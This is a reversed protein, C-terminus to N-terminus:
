NPIKLHMYPVVASYVAAAPTTGAPPPAPLIGRRAYLSVLTAAARAGRVFTAVNNAEGVRWSSYRRRVCWAVARDRRQQQHQESNYEVRM